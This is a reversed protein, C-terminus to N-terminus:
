SQSLVEELPTDNVFVAVGSVTSFQLATQEIQAQVLREVATGPQLRVGPHETGSRQKRGAGELKGPELVAAQVLATGRQAEDHLVPTTPIGARLGQHEARMVAHEAYAAAPRQHQQHEGDTRTVNTPHESEAGDHCDLLVHGPAPLQAGREAGRQQRPPNQDHEVM